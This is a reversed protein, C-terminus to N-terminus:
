GLLKSARIHSALSVLSRLDESKPAHTAVYTKALDRYLGDRTAIYLAIHLFARVDTAARSESQQDIEALQARVEKELKRKGIPDKRLQACILMAALYRRQLPLSTFRKISFDYIDDLQQNEHQLTEGVELKQDESQSASRDEFVRRRFIDVIQKMHRSVLLSERSNRRRETERDYQVDEDKLNSLRISFLQDFLQVQVTYRIGKPTKKRELIKVKQGQFPTSLLTVEQNDEEEDLSPWLEFMLREDACAEMFRNMEGDSIPYYNGAKNRVLFMRHLSKNWEQALEHVIDTLKARIFIYRYLSARKENSEEAASLGNRPNVSAKGYQLYPREGPERRKLFLYPIFTEWPEQHLESGFDDQKDEIRTENLRLLQEEAVKPNSTTLLYWKCIDINQTNQALTRSLTNEEEAFAM